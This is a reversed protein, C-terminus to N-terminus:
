ERHRPYNILQLDTGAGSCWCWWCWAVHWISWSNRWASMQHYWSSAVHWLIQKWHKRTETETNSDFHSACNLLIRHQRLNTEVWISWLTESECWFTHINENGDKCLYGVINLMLVFAYYAPPFWFKQSHTKNNLTNTTPSCHPPSPQDVKLYSVYDLNFQQPAPHQLQHVSSGAYKILRIVQKYHLKM